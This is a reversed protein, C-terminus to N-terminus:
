LSLRKFIPEPVARIILMIWRWFWRTYIRDKGKKFAAYIDDAVQDATATLVKPLDMGTTMKTDIFGPLVTLVRVRSKFLRNRLGDLYIKLAGKAAGYIYNSQRGRLGAVSSIAIIFGTCRKEFDAAVVELISVAGRFNTDIICGAEAFDAQAREQVGNYGFALVVGDPKPNLHNYFDAHSRTDTADFALTNVQVDCRVRIDRAKSELQELDRSALYLDAKETCALKKAVAHAVDSNAGLILIHM